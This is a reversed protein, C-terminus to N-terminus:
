NTSLAVEIKEKLIPIEKLLEERNKDSYFLVKGQLRKLEPLLFSLREPKLRDSDYEVLLSGTKPSYTLNKIEDHGKLSEMLAEVLVSDKLIQARFRIRGPFYSSVISM